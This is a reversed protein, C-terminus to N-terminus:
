GKLEGAVTKYPKRILAEFRAAAIRGFPVM